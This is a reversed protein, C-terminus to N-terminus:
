ALGRQKRWFWEAALTGCLLIFLIPVDWLEKQEVFSSAGDVYMADDPVEGLKSLPYYRGGTQAAVTQLLRSDLGANYFEVPRDAVQFATSYSGLSNAGQTADVEMQYVGPGGATVPTQYVGEQGTWDFAITQTNGSPDTVKGIVRANNM